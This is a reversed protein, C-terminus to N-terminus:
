LCLPWSCTFLYGQPGQWDSYVYLYSCTFLYWQPGQWDSYAYLDHVHSCIDKHDRDTLILMFTMFMHVSIRHWDVYVYLDHVHSCIDKHDRDTLMLMFTMFVHVSIRTIGTLWCLCLPWTCTFLLVQIKQWDFLAHWGYVFQTTFIFWPPMVTRQFVFKFILSFLNWKYSDRKPFLWM